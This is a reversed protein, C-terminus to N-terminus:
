YDESYFVLSIKGYDYEESQDSLSIKMKKGKQTFGWVMSDSGQVGDGYKTTFYETLRGLMISAVSDSALFIDEDVENLKQQDFNYALTYYNLSDIDENVSDPHLTDMPMTYAIYNTDTEDPSKKESKIVTKPDDGLSLNRFPHSGNGILLEILSVPKTTNTVAPQTTNHCSQLSLGITIFPLVIFYLVFQSNGAQRIKM